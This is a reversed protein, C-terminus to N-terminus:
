AIGDYIQFAQSYVLGQVEVNFYRTTGLANYSANTQTVSIAVVRNTDTVARNADSTSISSPSLRSGSTYAITLTGAGPTLAPTSYATDSVWWNLMHRETVSSGAYNNITTKVEVARTGFASNVSTTPKVLQYNVFTQAYLDWKTSGATSNNKNITFPLSPNANSWVSVGDGTWSDYFSASKNIFFGYKTDDYTELGAVATAGNYLTIHSGNTANFPTSTTKSIVISDGSGTTRFTGGTITATSTISGSFYGNQIVANSATMDGNAKVNFKSSSIFYNSGTASGSIYFGTGTIADSSLTFGGVKGGTFLVSSGTIQGSARLILASNATSIDTTTISFGGINGAVANVSGTIEISGSFFANSATIQGNSKMILQNNSSSIATATLTFGGIVGSGTATLTTATLNGSLNVNSATLNGTPSVFFNSASIVGSSSLILNSAQLKTSSVTWGGITGGTFLVTSGTIQGNSRLILANGSSTIATGTIAFGGILGNTANISGELYASGSAYFGYGSLTGFQGSTIGSLKGM